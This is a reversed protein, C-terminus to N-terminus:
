HAREVVIAADPKGWEYGLPDATFRYGAAVASKESTATVTETKGSSTVELQVSLVHDEKNPDGDVLVTAMSAGRNVVVLDAGSVAYRVDKHLLQSKGLSVSANAGTTPTKTCAGALAICLLASLTTRVTQALSARSL